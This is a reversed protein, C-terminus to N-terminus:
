SMSFSGLEALGWGGMRVTQGGSLAVCMFFKM